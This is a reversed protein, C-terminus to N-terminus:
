EFESDEVYLVNSEVAGYDELNIQKVSRNLLYGFRERFEEASIEEEKDSPLRSIFYIGPSIDIIGIGEREVFERFLQESYCDIRFIGRQSDLGEKYHERFDTEIKEVDMLYPDIILGVVDEHSHKNPDYVLIFSNDETATELDKTM